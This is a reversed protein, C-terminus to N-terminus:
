NNSKSEIKIQLNRYQCSAVIFHSNRDHESCTRVPVLALWENQQRKFTWDCIDDVLEFQFQTPGSSCPHIIIQSGIIQLLNNTRRKKSFAKKCPITEAAVDAFHGFLLQLLQLDLNSNNGAATRFENLNAKSSKKMNIISKLCGINIPVRREFCLNTLVIFVPHNM